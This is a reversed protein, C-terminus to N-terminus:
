RNLLKISEMIEIASLEADESLDKYQFHAYQPWRDKKLKIICQGGRGASLTWRYCEGKVDMGAINRSVAGSGLAYRPHNGVYLSLFSKDDRYFQVIVFDEAPQLTRICLSDNVSLSFGYKEFIEKKECPEEAFCVGVEGVFGLLVLFLMSRKM